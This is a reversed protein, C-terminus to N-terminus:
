LCAQCPVRGFRVAGSVASPLGDETRRGQCGVTSVPLAPWGEPDDEREVARVLRMRELARRGPETVVYEGQENRSVLRMAVLEKLTVYVTKDPRKSEKVLESFRKPGRELITLISMKVPRKSRPRSM